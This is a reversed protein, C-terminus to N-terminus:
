KTIFQQGPGKIYEVLATVAKKKEDSLKDSILMTFPREIKAVLSPSWIKTNTTLGLPGFSIAGKTTSLVKPIDHISGEIKQYTEVLPEGDMIRERFVKVTTVFQHGVMVKVPLDAGGLEKWNKIRGTFLGKVQEKTLDMSLVELDTVVDPNVLVGIRDTGIVMHQYDAIPKVAHGKSKMTELWGEMTIGAVAVDLEGSQLDVFMDVGSAEKFVLEIGRDKELHEKIPGLVGPIATLAGVRLVTKAGLMQCILALIVLRLIREM